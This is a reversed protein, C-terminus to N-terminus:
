DNKKQPQVMKKLEDIQEQQQLIYLTLEEVKEILRKSMDGLQIGEKEIQAASPINPLHKNKEIFKKVETLPRLKYDNAFVYDPWSNVALAVFDPALIRSQSSFPYGAPNLGGGYHFYNDETMHVGWGTGGSANIIIKGSGLTSKEIVLDKSTNDVSISGYLSEGISLGLSPTTANLSLTQFPFMTGIGVKGDYNIVMRDTGNNRFITRGYDNNINTGLKIDAGVLQLFGKDVDDSRLQLIPDTSNITLISSPNTTGIGVQGNEDITMRDLLKTQMILSGTTNTSNTGLKLNNGVAQLFGKNSAGNQIQIYPNTGNITLESVPTATGIGMLGDEDIWIKDVNKPSIVIKGSNFPYTGLKFNDGALRIFGKQVEEHLFGFIPSTGNIKFSADFNSNTGISVRGLHDINFHNNDKTGLILKGTPNDSATGINLNFGLAKIFSHALGNNMLGIDPDTGNITLKSAPMDTGIGVNQAHAISTIFAALIVVIKKM